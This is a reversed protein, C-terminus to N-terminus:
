LLISLGECRVVFSSINFYWLSRPNLTYAFCPLASNSAPFPTGECGGGYEGISHAILVM